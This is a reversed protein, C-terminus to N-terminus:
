RRRMVTVQYETGDQLYVVIGADRTLMGAEDYTRVSRVSEVAEAADPELANHAQESEMAYTLLQALANALNQDEM